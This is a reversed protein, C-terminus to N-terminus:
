NHLCVEMKLRLGHQVVRNGCSVFCGCKANCERIFTRQVHGLCKDVGDGLALMDCDCGTGLDCFQTEGDIHV